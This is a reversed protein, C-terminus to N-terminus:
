TVWDFDAHETRPLYMPLPAGLPRSPQWTSPCRWRHSESHGDAFSFNAGRDHYSAPLDLWEAYDAQNVFYGDNISDPHEDLFVFLDQPHPIAPMTFFQVYNPNNENSGTISLEGANGMMANMSYSRVLDSSCVDSSWDGYSRTHRR